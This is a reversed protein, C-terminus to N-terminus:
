RKWRAFLAKNADFFQKSITIYKGDDQRNQKLIPVPNCGLKVKEIQDIQFRNGCNNCVLEDGQQTYYGRGSDFCVQCTNFATRVTGDSAKVAIVEMYTDGAKYPYFKATSTIDSKKIKLGSSNGAANVKLLSFGFFAVALLALIPLTL